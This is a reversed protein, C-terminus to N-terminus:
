GGTGDEGPGGPVGIDPISRAVAAGAAAVSATVSVVAGDDPLGVAPPHEWLTARPWVETARTSARMIEVEVVAESMAAIIRAIAAPAHVADALAGAVTVRADLPWGPAVGVQSQLYQSLTALTVGGGVEVLGDGMATVAALPGDLVITVADDRVTPTGAVQWAGGAQAVRAMEDALERPTTVVTTEPM